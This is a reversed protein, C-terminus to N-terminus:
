ITQESYHLFFEATYALGKHMTKSTFVKLVGPLSEFRKLVGEEMLKCYKQIRREHRHRKKSLFSFLLRRALVHM